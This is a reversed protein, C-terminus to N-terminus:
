YLFLEFTAERSEYNFEKFKVLVYPANFRSGGGRPKLELRFNRNKKELTSYIKHLQETM